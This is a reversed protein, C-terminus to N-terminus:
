SGCNVIYYKIPINNIMTNVKKTSLVYEAEAEGVQVSLGKNFEPVKYNVYTFM